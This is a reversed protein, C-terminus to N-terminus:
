EVQVRKANIIVLKPLHVELIGDKFSARVQEQKVEVPLKIERKQGISSMERRLYTGERPTAKSEVYLSDETVRLDIKDKSIGPLAILAILEDETDILDIAAIDIGKAEGLDSTVDGLIKKAAQSAQTSMRAAEVAAKGIMREFDSSGSDLKMSSIYTSNEYFRKGGRSVVLGPTFV